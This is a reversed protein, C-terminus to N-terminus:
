LWGRERAVRCLARRKAHPAGEALGAKAYARRLAAKVTETAGPTGLQTAIEENSPLEELGGGELWRACLLRVVQQQLPSLGREYAPEPRMTETRDHDSQQVPSSFLLTATGCAIRDAHRLPLRVGPQAKVDNVFTGNFSGRDEIFWRGDVEVIVAHHRSVSKSLLILDNDDGRGVTVPGELKFERGDAFILGASM